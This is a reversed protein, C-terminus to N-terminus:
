PPNEMIGGNHQSVGTERVASTIKGLRSNQQSLKIINTNIKRTWQVKHLHMNCTYQFIYIYMYQMYIPIYKYIYYIYMYQMYLPQFHIWFSGARRLIRVHVAFIRMRPPYVNFMWNGPKYPGLRPYTRM